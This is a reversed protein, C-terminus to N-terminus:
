RKTKNFPSFLNLVNIKGIFCTDIHVISLTILENCQEQLKSSDFWGKRVLNAFSARKLISM